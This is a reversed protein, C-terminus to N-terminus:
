TSREAGQVTCHFTEISTHRLIALIQEDVLMCIDLSQESGSLFVQLLAEGGFRRRILSCLHPPVDLGPKLFKTLDHIM